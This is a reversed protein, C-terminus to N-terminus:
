DDGAPGGEALMAPEPKSPPAHLPHEDPVALRAPVLLASIVALAPLIAAVLYGIQYGHALRSPSPSGGHGGTVSAAITALAALGIAFGFQQATTLIGSALGHEREAVGSTAAIMSPAFSVGSGFAFLLLGPFVSVWYNGDVTIRSLLLTGALALVSGLVLLIRVGFGAVMRGAQSSIIMIAVTMPAFGIGVVFASYHLVDQLYLTAFFLVGGNAAALLMANLNGGSLSRNLFLGFRVLPQQHRREILVFACLVVAALGFAGTVLWDFGRPVAQSFGFVLLVLGSTLTLAGGLDLRDRQPPRSEPLVRSGVVIALIGIPLNVFFVSRWSFATTLVGGVLQGAIAGGSAIAGWLGMVHNREREDTFTVTLLSLAVPYVIAAGLGQMARSAFLEWGSQAIGCLLSGLTFWALGVLFTHRRGLLDGIRGALVMFGGFTLTYATAAWQLNAADIGLDRQASPLAVTVVAIDVVLMFSAAGLVALTLRRTGSRSRDPM